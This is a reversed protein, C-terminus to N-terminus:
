KRFFLVIFFSEVALSAVGLPELWEDSEPELGPLGITRSIVYAAITAAAIALGLNWGWARKGLYMGIAIIIAALGNLSFLWWEYTGEEFAGPAEILHIIGMALIAAIGLRLVLKSGTTQSM